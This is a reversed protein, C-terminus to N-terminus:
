QGVQEAIADEIQTIYAEQSDILDHIGRDNFHILNRKATLLDGKLIEEVTIQDRMAINRVVEIDFMM